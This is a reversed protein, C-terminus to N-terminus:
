VFLCVCVYVCVIVCVIVSVCVFVCVYLYRERLYTKWINRVMEKPEWLLLQFKILDDLFM